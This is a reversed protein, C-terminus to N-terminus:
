NKGQLYGRVIRIEEESVRNQLSEAIRRISATQLTMFQEEIEGTKEKSVLISIDFTRGKRLLREIYVAASHMSIELEAAVEVLTYGKTCVEYLVDPSIKKQSRQKEQKRQLPNLRKTM